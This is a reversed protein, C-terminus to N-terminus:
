ASAAPPGDLDLVVPFHDSALLLAERLPVDAYCAPHDFPHWIQWDPGQERLGPSVMIYDLLAQLYPGDPQRFRATAPQAGIRRGLAMHAHPDFLPTESGEGLVIEIGSRGFLKEYEDLGPGDNFDGLVILDDGAALHAEVRGRLWICQSLQKRRNEIAIRNAEAVDRSGHSAKSKAHVGILRITREGSRLAVELPPKSWKIIDPTADLDVDIRFKADFAPFDPQEQPDHEAQLKRSDYLLTIEQQTDNRFGALATNARLGFDEAFTQLALIGDRRRSTDPAEIVMVADADVAQFVAGLAQTQQAKTVDWRGSWSSDSILRGEDDFLNDFWEVNYTAIRM